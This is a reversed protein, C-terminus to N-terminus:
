RLRDIVKRRSTEARRQELAYLLGYTFGNENPTTGARAGLHLLTDTAVGSDQFEGLADQVATTKQTTRKAVKPALVPTALEIAYRARKAAKRARHVLEPDDDNSALARLRKSLQRQARETWEAARSKPAGAQGTFPPDALWQDIADLLAFYRRCNLTRLLTRRRRERETILDQEVRSAVPGIVVQDPLAAIVSRLHVRQVDADRVPGLVSSYWRLEADLAAAREADFVRYTRLTSRFRRAAVRTQDVADSGGRLELDGDLL